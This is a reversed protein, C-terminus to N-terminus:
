PQDISMARKACDTFQRLEASVDDRFPVDESWTEMQSGVWTSYRVMVEDTCPKDRCKCMASRFGSTQVLACGQDGSTCVVPTFEAPEVPMPASPSSPASDTGGCASVLLAVLRLRM